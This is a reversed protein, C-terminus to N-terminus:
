KRHEKRHELLAQKLAASAAFVRATALSRKEMRAEVPDALYAKYEALQVAYADDLDSLRELVIRAVGCGVCEGRLPAPRPLKPSRLPLGAGM